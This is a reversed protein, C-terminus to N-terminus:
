RNGVLNGQRNKQWKRARLFAKKKWCPHSCIAPNLRMDAQFHKCHLCPNARFEKITLWAGNLILGVFAVSAVYHVEQPLRFAAGYQFAENMGGEGIIGSQLGYYQRVYTWVEMWDVGYKIVLGWMFVVTSVAGIYTLTSRWGLNRRLVNMDGLNTIPGAMLFIWVLQPEVGALVLTAAVMIGPLSCIYMPIALVLMLLAAQYYPMGGLWDGLTRLSTVTMLLAVLALGVILDFSIRSGYTVTGWRLARVLFRGKEQRSDGEQCIYIPRDTEQGVNKFGELLYFLGGILYGSVVAGLVYYVTFVEGLIALSLIVAAISTAPASFVFAFVNGFPVGQKRLGVAMPVVGCSCIPLSFGSLNFFSLSWFSRTRAFNRVRQSRGLAEHVLGAAVMGIVVYPAM